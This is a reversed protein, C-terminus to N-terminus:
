FDYVEGEIEETDEEDEEAFAMINAEVEDPSKIRMKKKSEIKITKEGEIEYHIGVFQSAIKEDNELDPYGEELLTRLHWHDKARRNLFKMGEEEPEVEAGGVYPLVPYGQEKLRDYPGKGLGVVDINASEPEYKEIVMALERATQMTDEFSSRHVIRAVPGWRMVAVTMNAGGAAIDIGMRKPSTAECERYMAAKVWKYPFVLYSELMAEWDSELYRLVWEEPYLERLRQEYDPPLHPNDRPLAEVYRHDPLDQDIFRTKLWGPEPNGALLGRYRIGPAKLRLRSCLMLFVDEPVEGAEDIAIWGLSLSGLHKLPDSGASPKLGGYYIESNNILRYWQEAKNQQAVIENPLFEQFTKFTTKKFIRNEWRCILGRNNPTDLSLQIGETSLFVSKGGGVAGGYLLYLEPATHAICQKETPRYIQSLDITTTKGSFM